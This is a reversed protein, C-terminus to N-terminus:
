LNKRQFLSLFILLPILICTPQFFLTLQYQMLASYLASLLIIPDAGFFFGICTFVSLLFISYLCFGRSLFLIFDSLSVGTSVIAAVIEHAFFPLFIEEFFPFSSGKEVYNERHIKETSKHLPHGLQIPMSHM